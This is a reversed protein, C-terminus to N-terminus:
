AQRAFDRTSELLAYRASKARVDSAVLSKEVLSALSPFVTLEEDGCVSEAAELSWGGAFVSLRRLLIQESPALLDYSWAILARMTQQRSPAARDGGSLLDFRRDLRSEMTTVGLARVRAAALEIALPVGDLRRVIRAVVSCDDAGLAFGADRSSARECFLEVASYGMATAPTLLAEQPPCGLSPIEFVAEGDTRLPERSTALIRSEGGRKLVARSLQAVPDLLHECNDLILLACREHLFDAISDLTPTQAPSVGLVAAVTPTVASSAALAALDVFWEGDPFRLRQERAVEIATRTKGVGGPGVLTILRHTGLLAAAAAVEKARGILRTPPSPLNERQVPEPTVTARPKRSRAAEALSTLQSREEPTADLAILLQEVTERYPARRAGVELSGIAKASIRAREALAEQSLGAAVRLHRLLAGFTVAQM